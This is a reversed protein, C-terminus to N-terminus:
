WQTLLTASVILISGGFIGQHLTDSFVAYLIAGFISLAYEQFATFVLIAILLVHVTIAYDGLFFPFFSSQLLLFGFFLLTFVSAMKVRQIMFKYFYECRFARSYKDSTS